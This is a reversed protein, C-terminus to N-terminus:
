LIFHNKMENRFGCFIDSAYKPRIKARNHAMMNTEYIIVWEHHAM